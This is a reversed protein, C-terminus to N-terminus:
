SPRFAIAPGSIASIIPRGTNRRFHWWKPAQISRSSFSHHRTASLRPIKHRGAESDFQLRWGGGDRVGTLFAAVKEFIDIAKPPEGPYKEIGAVTVFRKHAIGFPRSVVLCMKFPAKAPEGGRELWGEKTAFRTIDRLIDGQTLSAGPRSLEVIPM